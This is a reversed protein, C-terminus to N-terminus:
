SSPSFEQTDGGLATVLRDYREMTVPTCACAEGNGYTTGGLLSSLPWGTAAHRAWNHNEAVYEGWKRVISPDLSTIRVSRGDTLFVAIAFRDPDSRPSLREHM